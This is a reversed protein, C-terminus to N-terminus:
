NAVLAGSSLNYEEHSWKPYVRKYLNLLVTDNAKIPRDFICKMHGHTGLSEQPLRPPPFPLCRTLLLLFLLWLLGWRLAGGGARGSM